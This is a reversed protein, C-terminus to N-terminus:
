SRERDSQIETERKRQWKNQMKYLKYNYDEYIYDIIERERETDRYRQRETDRGNIKCKM